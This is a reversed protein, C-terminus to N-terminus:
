RRKGSVDPVTRRAVLSLRRRQRTARASGPRRAREVHQQLGRRGDRVPRGGAPHRRRTSPRAQSTPFPARPSSSRSPSRRATSCGETSGDVALSAGDAGYADLVTGAATDSSFVQRRAAWPSNPRNSPGAGGGPRRRDAAPLATARPGTSVLCLSARTAAVHAGSTPDTGIVTGAPVDVSSQDARTVM